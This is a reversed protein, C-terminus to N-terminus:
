KVGTYIGITIIMMSIATTALVINLFEMWMEKKSKM